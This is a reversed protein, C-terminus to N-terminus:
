KFFKTLFEKVEKVTEAQRFGCKPTETESVLEAFDKVQPGEEVLWAAKQGEPVFITHFIEHGMTILNKTIPQFFEIDSDCSGAKVIKECDYFELKTFWNEPGNHKTVVNVPNGLIHSLTVSYRHNHAGLSFTNVNNNLHLVHDPTTFFARLLGGDPKRYFPISHLGKVHCDFRSLLLLDAPVYKEIHECLLFQFRDKNNCLTKIYQATIGKKM